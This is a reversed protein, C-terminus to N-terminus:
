LKHVNGTKCLFYLSSIHKIDGETLQNKDSPNLCWPQQINIDQLVYESLLDWLPYAVIDRPELDVDDAFWKLSNIWIKWDLFRGRQGFDFGM